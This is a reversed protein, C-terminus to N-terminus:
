GRNYEYWELHSEIETIRAVIKKRKHKLASSMAQKEEKTLDRDNAIDDLECEIQEELEKLERHTLNYKM